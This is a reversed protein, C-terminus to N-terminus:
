SKEIYGLGVYAKLKTAIERAFEFDIGQNVEVAYPLADEHNKFNYGPFAMEPFLVIDIKAQSTYKQLSIRVRDITKQKDRHFPSIQCLLAKINRVPKDQSAEM